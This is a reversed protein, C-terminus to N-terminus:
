LEALWSPTLAFATAGFHQAAAFASRELTDARM